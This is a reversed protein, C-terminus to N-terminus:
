LEDRCYDCWDAEGPQELVLGERAKKVEAYISQSVKLEKFAKTVVAQGLAQTAVAQEVEKEYTRYKRECKEMDVKASLKSEVAQRASMDRVGTLRYSNKAVTEAKQAEAVATAMVRKSAEWKKSVGDLTERSADTIMKHAEYNNQAIRVGEMGKTVLDQLTAFHLDGTWMPGAAHSAARKAKNVGDRFMRRSAASVIGLRSLGEDDIQTLTYGDVDERRLIHAIGGPVHPLSPAAWTAWKVTEDTNWRLL